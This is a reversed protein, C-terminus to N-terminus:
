DNIEPRSLFIANIQRDRFCTRSVNSARQHAMRAITGAEGKLANHALEGYEMAVGRMFSM